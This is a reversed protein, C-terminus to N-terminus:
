HPRVSRALINALKTVGQSRDKQEYNANTIHSRCVLVYERSEMLLFCWVLFDCDSNFPEFM